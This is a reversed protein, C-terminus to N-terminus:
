KSGKKLTQVINIIILADKIKTAKIKTRVDTRCKGDIMRRVDTPNMADILDKEDTGKGGSLTLNRGCYIGNCIGSFRM